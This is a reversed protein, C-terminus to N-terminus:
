QTSGMAKNSVVRQRFRAVLCGAVFYALLGSIIWLTQVLWKGGPVDALRSLATLSVICVACVLFTVLYVVLVSPVSLVAKQKAQRRWLVGVVILAILAASGMLSYVEPATIM